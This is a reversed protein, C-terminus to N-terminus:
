GTTKGQKISSSKNKILVDGRLRRNTDAYGRNSGGVKTVEVYVRTTPQGEKRVVASLTKASTDSDHNALFQAGVIYTKTNKKAM